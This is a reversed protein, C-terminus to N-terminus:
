GLFIRIDEWKKVTLFGFNTGTKMKINVWKEGNKVRNKNKYKRM